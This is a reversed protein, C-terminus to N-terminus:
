VEGVGTEEPHDIHYAAVAQERTVGPHQWYPRLHDIEKRLKRAADEQGEHEYVALAEEAQELTGLRKAIRRGDMKKSM